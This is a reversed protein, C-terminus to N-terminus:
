LYELRNRMADRDTTAHLLFLLQILEGISYKTASCWAIGAHQVGSQHLALYDTDFTAMVREEATAFALQDLDPSGCRGAEQATLIDIGRQRLGQAVPGPYHQDFYYRIPDAV